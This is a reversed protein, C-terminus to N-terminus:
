QEEIEGHLQGFEKRWQEVAKLHIDNLEQGIEKNPNELNMEHLSRFDSCMGIFIHYDVKRAIAPDFIGSTGEDGLLLNRLYSDEGGASYNGEFLERLHLKASPTIKARKMLSDFRQALVKFHESNVRKTLTDYFKEKDEKFLIPDKPIQDLLGRMKERLEEFPMSEYPNQAEKNDM